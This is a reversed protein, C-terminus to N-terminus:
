SSDRKDQDTTFIHVALQFNGQSEGSDHPQSRAAPDSLFNELQSRNESAGKVHRKSEFAAWKRETDM